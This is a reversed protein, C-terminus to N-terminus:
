ISQWMTKKENYFLTISKINHHQRKQTKVATEMNREKKIKRRLFIKKQKGFDENQNKM